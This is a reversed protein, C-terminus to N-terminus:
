PDQAVPARQDDTGDRRWSSSTVAKSLGRDGGRVQACIPSVWYSTKLGNIAGLHYLAGM